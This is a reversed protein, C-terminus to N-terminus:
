SSHGISHRTSVARVSREAILSRWRFAPLTCCGVLFRSSLYGPDSYMGLEAEFTGDTPAALLADTNILFISFLSLLPLLVILWIQWTNTNGAANQATVPAAYSYNAAPANASYPAAAFQTSSPTAIPPIAPPSVALPTAAPPSAVPPSAVPPTSTPAAASPLPTADAPIVNAAAWMKGNWWRPAAGGAPDPYWGAPPLPTSSDTM